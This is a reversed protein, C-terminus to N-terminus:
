IRPRDSLLASCAVPALKMRRSLSNPSYRTAVPIPNISCLGRGSLGAARPKWGSLSILFTTTLFYDINRWCVGSPCVGDPTYPAPRQACRWLDLCPDIIPLCMFLVKRSIGSIKWWSSYTAKNSSILRYIDVAQGVSSCLYKGKQRRGHVCM